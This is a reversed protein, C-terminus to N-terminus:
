SEELESTARQIAAEYSAFDTEGNFVRLTRKGGPALLAVTGTKSKHADFFERLGLLEAKQSAKALRARDTVDFVVLTVRDSLELEIRKWTPALRICTGCWDAHVKIMIPRAESHAASAIPLVWSVALVAILLRSAIRIRVWRKRMM